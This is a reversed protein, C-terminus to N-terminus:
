LVKGASGFPVKPRLYIRDDPMRDVVFGDFTTRTLTVESPDGFEDQMLEVSIRRVDDDTTGPPLELEFTRSRGALTINLVTM